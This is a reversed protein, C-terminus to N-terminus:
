NKKKLVAKIKDEVTFSKNKLIVDTLEEAKRSDKLKEELKEKISEKKFTQPVKKQFLVINADDLKIEDLDNQTMYDKIESELSKNEDQLTKMQKRLEAVQKNITIYKKMKSSIDMKIINIRIIKLKM